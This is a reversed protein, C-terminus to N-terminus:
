QESHGLVLEPHEKELKEYFNAAMKLKQHLEGILNRLENESAIKSAYESKLYNNESQTKSLLKSTTEISSILHFERTKAAEFENELKNLEKSIQEKAQELDSNRQLLKEARNKQEDHWQIQDKLKTRLDNIKDDYEQKLSAQISESEFKFRDFNASLESMESHSSELLKEASKFKTKAEHLQQNTQEIISDKQELKTNLSKVELELPQFKKVELLLEQREADLQSNSSVLEAFRTDNESVLLKLKQIEELLEKREKEKNSKENQLESIQTDKDSSFKKLEDVQSLLKRQDEQCASLQVDIKEVLELQETLKKSKYDIDSQVENRSRREDDLQARTKALESQEDQLSQQSSQLQVSLDQSKLISHNLRFFYETFVNHTTDELILEYGLGYLAETLNEASASFKYLPEKSGRIVLWDLKHLIEVECSQLLTSEYGQVELVLVNKQHPKTKVNECIVESFAIPEVTLSEASQINSFHSYLKDAALISNFRPNTFQHVECTENSAAVWAQKARVNKYRREKVQLKKFLTADAEIAIIKEINLNEYVSLETGVGAGIHLLTGIPQKLPRLINSLLALM